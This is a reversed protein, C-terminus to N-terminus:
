QYKYLIIVEKDSYSLDHKNSSLFYKFSEQSVNEKFVGNEWFSNEGIVGGWSGSIWEGDKWIVAIEKTIVDELIRYSIALAMKENEVKIDDAKLWEPCNDMLRIEELTYYGDNVIKNEINM